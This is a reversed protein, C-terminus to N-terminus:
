ATDIDVGTEYEYEVYPKLPMLCLSFGSIEAKIINKGKVLYATLEYDHDNQGLTFTDIENGNPQDLIKYGCAHINNKLWPWLGYLNSWITPRGDYESPLFRGGAFYEEYMQFYKIKFPRFIELAKPIARIAEPYDNVHILSHFTLPKDEESISLAFQLKNDKRFEVGAATEYKEHERLLFSTANEINLQFPKNSADKVYPPTWFTYGLKEAVELIKAINNPTPQVGLDFFYFFDFGM